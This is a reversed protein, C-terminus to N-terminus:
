SKNLYCMRWSCCQVSSHLLTSQIWKCLGKELLWYASSIVSANNLHKAESAASPLLFGLFFSMWVFWLQLCKSSDVLFHRNAKFDNLAFNSNFFLTRSHVSGQNWAPVLSAGDEEHVNTVFTQVFFQSAACGTRTRTGRGGREKMVMGLSPNEWGTCWIEAVHMQQRWLPLSSTQQAEQQVGRPQKCWDCLAVRFFATKAFYARM